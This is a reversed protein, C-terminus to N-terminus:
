SAAAQDPVLSLLLEWEDKRVHAPDQVRGDTASEVIETVQAPTFGRRKCQAMFARGAAPGVLKENSEDFPPPAPPPAPRGSGPADERESGAELAPPVVGADIQLDEFGQAPGLIEITPFTFTTRGKHTLTRLVGAVPRGRSLWPLALTIATPFTEAAIRSHTVLAGTGLIAVDPCVVSIRSMPKCSNKDEIRKDIDGPCLCDQKTLQEVEGDCRRDCVKGRYLEWWQILSDGPMIWIPLGTIPLYVEWEDEWARVEGGKAEGYKEAFAAVAEKNPATIRIRDTLAVPGSNRGSRDGLRIRFSDQYRQQLDKIPM